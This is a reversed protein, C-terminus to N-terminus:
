VSYITPLTLHTYSVTNITKNIKFIEDFQKIPDCKKSHVKCYYNNNQIFSAKLGCHCKTEERDTLDINEWKIIFWKNDKKTFLCYALHIIGVDFSLIIQDM